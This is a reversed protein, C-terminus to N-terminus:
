LSHTMTDGSDQKKAQTRQISPPSSRKSDILRILCNSCWVARRVWMQTISHLIRLTVRAVCHVIELQTLVRIRRKIASIIVEPIQQKAMWIWSIGVSEVSRVKRWIRSHDSEKSSRWIRSTRKLKRTYNKFRLLCGTRIPQIAQKLTMRTLNRQHSQLHLVTNKPTTRPTKEEVRDRLIMQNSVKEM